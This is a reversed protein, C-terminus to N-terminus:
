KQEKTNSNQVLFQGIAAIALSLETTPCVAYTKNGLADIGIQSELIYDIGYFGCETPKAVLRYTGYNGNNYEWDLSHEILVTPKNIM